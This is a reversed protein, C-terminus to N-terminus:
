DYGSKGIQNYCNLLPSLTLGWNVMCCSAMPNALCKLEGQSFLNLCLREMIEDPLEEYDYVECHLVGKHESIAGKFNNSIYSM